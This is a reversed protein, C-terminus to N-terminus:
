VKKGEACWTILETMFQKIEGKPVDINTIGIHYLRPEKESHHGYEDLWAGRISGGWDLKGQLFPMNVMTLYNIYNAENKGHDHYEFTKNNLICDIVELMKKAFYVDMEGHYTTFDFVHSGAFELHSDPPCENQQAELYEENLLETYKGM